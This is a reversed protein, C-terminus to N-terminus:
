SFTIFVSHVSTIWIIELRQPLDPPSTADHWMM